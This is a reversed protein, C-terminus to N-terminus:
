NVNEKGEKTPLRLECDTKGYIYLILLYITLATMMIATLPFIQNYNGYSNFFFIKNLFPLTKGIINSIELIISFPILWFAIFGGCFIAHGWSRRQMLFILKILLLANLLGCDYLRHYSLPITVAFLFLLLNLSFRDTKRERWIVWLLIAWFTFIGVTNILSNKFFSFDIMNYGSVAFSNFGTAINDDTVSFYECYIEVLDLGFFLPYISLILFIIFGTICLNFKRKFFLVPALATIMTYKMLATLGLATAQSIPNKLKFLLMIGLATWVPSQGHRLCMITPSSNIYIFFSGLWLWSIANPSKLNLKEKLGVLNFCLQFVYVAAAISLLYYIIKGTSINFLTFPIFFITMGPFVILPDDWQRLSLNAPDFFNLGKLM